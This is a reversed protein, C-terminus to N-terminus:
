MIAIIEDDARRVMKINGQYMQLLRAVNLDAHSRITVKVISSAIGPMQNLALPLIDDFSADVVKDFFLYNTM